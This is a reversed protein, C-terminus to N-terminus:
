GLGYETCVLGCWGVRAWVRRCSAWVFGSSGVRDLVLGCSDARAWLLGCSGCSGCSGMRAWVLGYSDVRPERVWVLGYTCGPDWLLRCSGVRVWVLGYSCVRTHVFWSSSMPPVHAWVLEHPVYSCM